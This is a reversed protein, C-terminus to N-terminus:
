LLTVNYPLTKNLNFIHLCCCFTCKLFANLILGLLRFFDLLSHWNCYLIPEYVRTLRYKNNLNNWTNIRLSVIIDVHEIFNKKETQYCYSCMSFHYRALLKMANQTLGSVRSSVKYIDSSLKVIMYSEERSLRTCGREGATTFATISVTIFQIEHNTTINHYILKM